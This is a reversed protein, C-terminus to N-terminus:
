CTAVHLKHTRQPSPSRRCSATPLLCLLSSSGRALEACTRSTLVFYQALPTPRDVQLDRHNAAAIQSISRDIKREEKRGTLAEVKTTVPPGPGL